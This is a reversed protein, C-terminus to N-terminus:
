RGVLEATLATVDPRGELLEDLVFPCDEPLTRLDHTGEEAKVGYLADAYLDDLDLRKRMSPTFTRRAGALFTAVEGLWHAAAQDGPRAQLKLLHMLAQVLLSSCARLESLGVDRVEEIVNAWDMAELREGAAVRRLLGAQREAWALADRQYLDDAEAKTQQLTEM